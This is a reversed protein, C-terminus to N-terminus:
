PKNWNVFVKVDISTSKIPSSKEGNRSLEWAVLIHTIRAAGSALQPLGHCKQIPVNLTSFYIFM